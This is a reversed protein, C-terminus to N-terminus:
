GDEEDGRAVIRLIGDRLPRQLAKAEDWPASLWTDIEKATTLIVPMARVHISAVTPNPECTLFAFRDKAAPQDTLRHRSIWSPVWIGAFYCLERAGKAFWVAPRSGDALVERESFSTFPVICRSEVGLWRLWHPSKTNRINTIGPDPESRKLVEIDVPKGRAALYDARKLAGEELLSKPSPMGWHAMALERGALTNRIIPARYNPFVSYLPDYNGMNDNRYFARVFQLHGERSSTVSYLNCM